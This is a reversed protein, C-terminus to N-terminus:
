LDAFVYHISPFNFCVLRITSESRVEACWIKTTFFCVSRPCKLLFNLQWMWSGEFKPCGGYGQLFCVAPCKFAGWVNIGKGSPGFWNRKNESLRGGQVQLPWWLCEDMWGPHSHSIEGGFSWNTNARDKEMKKGKEIHTNHREKGGEGGNRERERM